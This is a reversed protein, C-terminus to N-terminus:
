GQFRTLGHPFLIYCLLEPYDTALSPNQLSSTRGEKETSPPLPFHYHWWDGKARSALGGKAPLELPVFLLSFLSWRKWHCFIQQISMHFAQVFYVASVSAM